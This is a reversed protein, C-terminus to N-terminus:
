FVSKERNVTLGAEKIRKLVRDLFKVHDKFTEAAIIINDLYSFAHPQLEPTIIIDMLRQFAAEAESFCFPLRRFQFLGMGPVAFM